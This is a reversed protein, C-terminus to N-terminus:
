PAVALGLGLGRRIHKELRDIRRAGPAKHAPRVVLRPSTKSLKFGVGVGTLREAVYLITGLREALVLDDDVLVARWLRRWGEPWPEGEHRAVALVALAASRHTLGLLPTHRLLYASHLAHQWTDVATGVDHFLAAARVAVREEPGWGFRRQVADFLDTAIREVERGHELSFRFSLTEVIAARDLLQDVSRPPPIGAAEYALGDRIGQASVILDADGFRLAVERLAAIGAVIVDARTRDIGPVERRRDAPMPRLVSWLGKLDKGRLPYGHVARLPYDTLDMSVRALARATGGVVFIRARAPTPPLRELEDHVRTRLLEVERERAPDHPLYQDTLRVTGIPRSFARRYRGGRVYVVQMSGGGLDIIVDDALRWAHSVGLYAYRGEDEGSLVRPRVGAVEAVRDVFAERNPADRVASTAVAITMRAPAPPLRALLRKVARAGQEIAEHGLAGNPETGRALRPVEKYARVVRLGARPVVEYEVLRITNSGIDVVATTRGLERTTPIPDSETRAGM